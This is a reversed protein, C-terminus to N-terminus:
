VFSEEGDYDAPSATPRKQKGLGWRDRHCKRVVLNWDRWRNRNGNSQASEDIYNICRETEEQGLESVLSDYEEQTLKVWGFRGRPLRAGRLTLAGDPPTGEGTRDQDISNKDISDKGIRYQTALQNGNPQWNTALQNGDPQWVGGLVYKGTDDLGLLSLEETLRTKLYRDKRIQNNVRWHTLVCIGSQFLILFGGEVLRRLDEPEIGLMRVIRKPAAVFGDDDARMGLHFYLCQASVPLDLFADTNVVELSFMRRMAM